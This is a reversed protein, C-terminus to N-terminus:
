LLYHKIMLEFHNMDLPQESSELTLFLQDGIFIGNKEYLRLKYINRRVYKPDDMKGLHEHYYQKRKRVNLVTFDPRVTVFNTKDTLFLPKEYKYHFGMMNYKDAIIKESKSRVREGRESYIEPIKNSFYGPAYSDNEWNRIFLEDDPVYPTILKKRENHLLSFVNILSNENIDKLATRVASLQRYATKLFAKDYSRQALNTILEANNAPSIYHSHKQGNEDTYKHYFRARGKVNSIRLHGTIQNNEAHEAEHIMKLIDAELQLLIERIEKNSM